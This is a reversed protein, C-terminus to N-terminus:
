GFLGRRVPLGHSLTTLGGGYLDYVPRIDELILQVAKLPRDYRCNVIELFGSHQRFLSVAYDPELGDDWRWQEPYFYYYLPYTAATLVSVGRKEHAWLDVGAQHAAEAALVLAQVAMIQNQLGLGDEGEVAAPIYGEPHVAEDITQRYVAAGLEFVDERELVVGAAVNLAALWLTETIHQQDPTNNLHEVRAYFAELFATQIELPFTPHDRLLEFCQALALTEAATNLYGASEVPSLANVSQLASIATEGDAAADDFRFRLGAWQIATLEDGAPTTNLLTDWADKFPPRSRERRARDV